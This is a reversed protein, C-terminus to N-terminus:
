RKLLARKHLHVLICELVYMDPEEEEAILITLPDDQCGLTQEMEARVGAIQEPTGSDISVTRILM